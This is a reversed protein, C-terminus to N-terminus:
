SDHLATCFQFFSLKKLKASATSESNQQRNVINNMFNKKKKKLNNQLRALELVLSLKGIEISRTIRKEQLTNRFCSEPQENSTPSSSSATWICPMM